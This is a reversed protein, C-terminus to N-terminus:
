ESWDKLTIFSLGSNSVVASSLIDFGSFTVVDKVNPNAMAIQDFKDALAQTRTLAAADPLMIASILYGQDEDPVLEGPVKMFLLYSALLMTVIISFALAERRNLFAVGRVYGRTLQDFRHNFWV